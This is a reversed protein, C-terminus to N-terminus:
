STRHESLLFGEFTLQKNLFCQHKVLCSIFIFLYTWKFILSNPHLSTKGSLIYNLHIYINNTLYRMLKMKLSQFGILLDIKLEMNLSIQFKGQLHKFSQKCNRQRQIKQWKHFRYTNFRILITFTSSGAVAWM